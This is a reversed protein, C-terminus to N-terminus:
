RDLGEDAGQLPGEGADGVGHQVDPTAIVRGPARVSGGKGAAKGYQKSSSCAYRQDDGELVLDHFLRAAAPWPLHADVGVRVLQQVPLLHLDDGVVPMRRPAAGNGPGVEMETWRADASRGGQEPCVRGVPRTARSCTTRSATMSRPISGRRDSQDSTM